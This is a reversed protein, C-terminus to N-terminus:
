ILFARSDESSLIKIPSASVWYMVEEFAMVEETSIWIHEADTIYEGMGECCKIKNYLEDYNTYRCLFCTAITLWLCFECHQGINLDLARSQYDYM